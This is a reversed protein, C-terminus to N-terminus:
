ERSIAGALNGGSSAFDLFLTWFSVGLRGVGVGFFSFSVSFWGGPPKRKNPCWTLRGM